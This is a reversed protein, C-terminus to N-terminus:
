TRLDVSTDVFNRCLIIIIVTIITFVPSLLLASSLGPNSDRCLCSVKEKRFIDVCNRPGVWGGMLRTGINTGPLLAAPAHLRGSLEM